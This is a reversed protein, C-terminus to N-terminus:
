KASPVSIPYPDLENLEAEVIEWDQEWTALDFNPDITPSHTQMFALLSAEAPMIMAPNPPTAQIEAVLTERESQPDHGNPENSSPPAFHVILNAIYDPLTLAQQKALEELNNIITEPLEITITTM